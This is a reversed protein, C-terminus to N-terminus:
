DCTEIKGGDPSEDMTFGFDGGGLMDLTEQMTSKALDPVYQALASPSGLDFGLQSFLPQM